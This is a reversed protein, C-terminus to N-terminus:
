RFYLTFLFVTLAYFSLEGVLSHLCLLRLLHQLALALEWALLSWNRRLQEWAESRVSVMGRSNKGANKSRIGGWQKGLSWVVAEWRGRGGGAAGSLSERFFREVNPIVDDRFIGRTKSDKHLSKGFHWENWVLWFVWLDLFMPFEKMDRINIYM